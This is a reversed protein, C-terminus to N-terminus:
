AALSQRDLVLIEVLREAEQNTLVYLLFDDADVDIVRAVM